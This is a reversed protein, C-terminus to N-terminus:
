FLIFHGYFLNRANGTNIDIDIDDFPLALMEFKNKAGNLRPIRFQLALDKDYTYIAALCAYKQSDDAKLM